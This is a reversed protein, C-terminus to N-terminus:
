YMEEIMSGMVAVADDPDNQRQFPCDDCHIGVCNVSGCMQEAIDQMLEGVRLKLEPNHERLIDIVNKMDM